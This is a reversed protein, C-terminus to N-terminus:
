KKRRATKLASEIYLAVKPGVYTTDEIELVLAGTDPDKRLQAPQKTLRTLEHLKELTPYRNSM